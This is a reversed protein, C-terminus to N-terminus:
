ADEDHWFATEALWSQAIQGLETPRKCALRLHDLGHPLRQDNGTLSALSCGYRQPM